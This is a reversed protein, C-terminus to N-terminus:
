AAKKENLEERGPPVLPEKWYYPPIEVHANVSRTNFELSVYLTSLKLHSKRFWTAGLDTILLDVAWCNANGPLVEIWNTPSIPEGNREDILTM